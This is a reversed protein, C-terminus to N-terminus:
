HSAWSPADLLPTPNTLLSVSYIEVNRTPSTMVQDGLIEVVQGVRLQQSCQYMSLEALAYSARGNMSGYMGVICSDGVSVVVAIKGSKPFGQLRGEIWDYAIPAPPTSLQVGLISANTAPKISYIEVNSTPTVLMQDGLIEVVDGPNLRDGCRYMSLIGLYFLTAKNDPVYVGVICNDGESVVIGITGTAPFGMLKTRIYDIDLPEPGTGVVFSESVGVSDYVSARDSDTTTGAHSLPTAWGSSRQAYMTSQWKAPPAYTSTWVSVGGHHSCTGSGTSSSVWGDQCVAGAYVQSSILLGLVSVLTAIVRRHVTSRHIGMDHM